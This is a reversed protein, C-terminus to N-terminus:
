PWLRDAKHPRRQRAYYEGAQHGQLYRSARAPIRLGHFNRGFLLHGSGTFFSSYLIDSKQNPVRLERYVLILRGTRNFSRTQFKRLFLLIQQTSILSNLTCVYM